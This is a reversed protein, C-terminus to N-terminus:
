GYKSFVGNVDVFWQARVHAGVCSLDTSYQRKEEGWFNSRKMSQGHRLTVGAAKKPNTAFYYHYMEKARHTHTYTNTSAWYVFYIFLVYMYKSECDYLTRGVFSISALLTLVFSTDLPVFERACWGCQKSCHFFFLLRAVTASLVFSFFFMVLWNWRYIVCKTSLDVIPGSKSGWLFMSVCM